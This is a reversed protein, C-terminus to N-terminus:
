LTARVIALTALLTIPSVVTTWFVIDGMLRTDGDMEHTLLLTNVATPTGSTVILVAAVAPGVDLISGPALHHAAVLGGTMALPGGLLRVVTVFSVPRWRPWRPANALQAGLTVLAVPVLGNALYETTRDLWTPMAVTGGDVWRWVLSGTLAYPIPMLLLKRTIRGFGGGAASGALALGVTFTFVSQTSLVFAQVGKGFDGFALVALPVGYNGSNYIMTGNMVASTTPWSAGASKGGVYGVVGLAVALLTSTGVIGAMAEGDLNATAVNRFVFAPTLVYLSVKVLTSLDLAFIRRLTAGAGMMLLIPLLVDTLITFLEGAM